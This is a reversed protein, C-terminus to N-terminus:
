KQDCSLAVSLNRYLEDADVCSLGSMQGDNLEVVRWEGDFHQAVDIVYFNIYNKVIDAIKAIFEIPIENTTIDCCEAVEPHNSWYFGKALITDRYMFIRFEKTVPIGGIATGYSRFPEFQRFVIDQQSIFTDNQLNNWVTRMEDENTAYMHTKWLHKKSNTSGKLVIPYRGNHKAEAFSFFTKPTYAKLDHYWQSINAVYEHQSLSNLLSAKAYVCDRQTEEYFPLASYRPIVVDNPQIEMRSYIVKFYKKAIEIEGDEAMQKRFLLVNM